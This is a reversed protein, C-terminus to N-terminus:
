PAVTMEAALAMAADHALHAMGAPYLRTCAIERGRYEVKGECGFNVGMRVVRVTVRVHNKSYTKTTM